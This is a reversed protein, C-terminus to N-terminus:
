LKVSITSGIFSAGVIEATGACDTGSFTGSSGTVNVTPSTSLSAAVSVTVAVDDFWAITGSAFRVSPPLPAARVMAAMGSTPTRPSVVIVNVTLSPSSLVDVVNTNDTM